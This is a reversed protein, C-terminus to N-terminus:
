AGAAKIVLKAGTPKKIVLKAGTPKKIVLTMGWGGYYRQRTARGGM